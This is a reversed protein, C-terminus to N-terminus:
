GPIYGIYNLQRYQERFDIGYGVVFKNPIDFGHYNLKIRATRRVTKNLLACVRVSRAGSKKLRAVLFATTLGTDVIDDMIIVDRGRVPGSLDLLIKIKGSSETAKGDSALRIFDCDTTIHIQRLLDAMFVFAGTLVCIMLPKRGTGAYDVSIRGALQRVKNRIDRAAILVPPKLNPRAPNKRKAATIM